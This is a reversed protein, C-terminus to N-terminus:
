FPKYYPGSCIVSFTWFLFALNSFIFVIYNFKNVIKNICIGIWSLIQAGVLLSLSIVVRIISFYCFFDGDSKEISTINWIIFIFLISMLDLINSPSCLKKMM